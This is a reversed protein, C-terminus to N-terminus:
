DKKGLIMKGAGILSGVVGVSLGAFVISVIFKDRKGKIWLPTQTPAQFYRQNAIVNNPRNVLM